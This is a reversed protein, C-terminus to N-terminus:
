PLGDIQRLPLFDDTFGVEVEEWFDDGLGEPLIVQENELVALGQYIFHM